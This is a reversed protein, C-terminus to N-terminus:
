KKGAKKKPAPKKVPEAKKWAGNKRPVMGEPTYDYRQESM